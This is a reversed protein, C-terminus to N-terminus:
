CLSKTTADLWGSQAASRLARLLATTTLRAAARATGDRMTRMPKSKGEAELVLNRGFLVGEADLAIERRALARRCRRTCRLRTAAFARLREV